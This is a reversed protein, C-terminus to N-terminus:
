KGNKIFTIVQDGEKVGSLVEVMGGDGRLGIKVPEEVVTKGVLIRVYREGNNKEIVARSPMILVNERSATTIIVNA